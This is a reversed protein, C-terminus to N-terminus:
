KNLVPDLMKNLKTYFETEPLLYKKMFQINGIEFELESPLETEKLYVSFFPKHKKLAFALSTTGCKAVGILSFFGYDNFNIM